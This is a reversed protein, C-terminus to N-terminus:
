WSGRYCYLHIHEFYAVKRMSSSIDVYSREVETGPGISATVAGVLNTVPEPRERRQEMWGGETSVEIM